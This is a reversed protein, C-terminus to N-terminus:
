PRSALGDAPRSAFHMAAAPKDQFCQRSRLVKSPVRSKPPAVRYSETAPGGDPTPRAHPLRKGTRGRDREPPRRHASGPAVAHRPAGEFLSVARPASMEPSTPRPS